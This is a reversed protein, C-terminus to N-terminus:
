CAGACYAWALRAALRATAGDRDFRPNLGWIGCSGPRPTAGLRAAARLVLDPDIGFAVPESVGPAVSQAFAGLDISLTLADVRASLEVALDPLADAEPDAFPVMRVGQSHLFAVQGGAAHAPQLGVLLVDDGALAAAPERLLRRLATHDHPEGEHSSADPMADVVLLGLRAPDRERRRRRAVGLVEGYVADHGGGAVMLRAQPFRGTLVDIVESLRAHTEDTRGASLLDGADLLSGAAWGEPAMLRFFADRFRLPGDAAGIRGGGIGVGRDCAVGLLIARVTGASPQQDLTVVKAGLADDRLKRGQGSRRTTDHRIYRLTDQSM